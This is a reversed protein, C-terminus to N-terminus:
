FFNTFFFNKKFGDTDDIVEKKKNKTKKNKTEKKKIKEDKNIKLTCFIQNDFDFIKDFIKSTDLVFFNEEFYDISKLNKYLNNKDILNSVIFDIKSNKTIKKKSNLTFRFNIKKSIEEKIKKKFQNTISQDNSEDIM